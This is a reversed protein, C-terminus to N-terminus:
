PPLIIGGESVDPDDLPAEDPSILRALFWKCWPIGSAPGDQTFARAGALLRDAVAQDGSRRYIWATQRLRLSYVARTAEDFLENVVRDVAAGAQQERQADTVVLVGGDLEGLAQELAEGASRPPMWHNIPPILLLDAGGDVPGADLPPLEVEADALGAMLSHLEPVRVRVEDPEPDKRLASRILAGAEETPLEAVPLRGDAAIRAMTERHAGWTAQMFGLETVGKADSIVVQAVMLGGGDGATVLWILRVGDTDPATCVSPPVAERYRRWVTRRTGEQRAPVDIGAEALRHLSARALSRRAKDAGDTLARLGDLDRAEELARVEALAAPDVAHGRKKHKRKAVSRCTPM